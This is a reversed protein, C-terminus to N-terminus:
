QASQNLRQIHNGTQLSNFRDELQELVADRYYDKSISERKFPISVTDNDSVEVVIDQKPYPKGNSPFQFQM